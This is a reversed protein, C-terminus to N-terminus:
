DLSRAGGTLSGPWFGIEKERNPYVRAGLVQAILQAGLCIGLVKKGEKIAEAILMKEAQLWPFAEEDHVSMPGGMIILADFDTTAPLPEDQFLATTGLTHGRERVFDGVLGATEFSVHQLCHFR